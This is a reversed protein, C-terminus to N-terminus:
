ISPETSNVYAPPQARSREHSPARGAGSMVPVADRQYVLTSILQFQRERRALAGELEVWGM